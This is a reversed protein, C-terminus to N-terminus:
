AHSDLVLLGNSDFEQRLTDITVYGRESSDSHQYFISTTLFNGRYQNLRKASSRGFYFIELARNRNDFFATEVHIGNRWKTRIYAIKEDPSERRPIGRDLSYDESSCGILVLTLSLSLLISHVSTSKCSNSHWFDPM